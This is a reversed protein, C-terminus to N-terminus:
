TKKQLNKIKKYMFVYKHLMKHEFVTNDVIIQLWFCITNRKKHNWAKVVVKNLYISMYTEYYKHNIPKM